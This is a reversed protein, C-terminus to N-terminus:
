SNDIAEAKQYSQERVIEFVQRFQELADQSERELSESIFYLIDTKDDESPITAIGAALASVTKRIMDIRILSTELEILQKYAIM